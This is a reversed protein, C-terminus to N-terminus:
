FFVHNGIVLGQRGSSVPRFQTRGDVMDAGALAEAAAQMCSASPGRSIVGALKSSNASYYQGRAFVVNQVTSGYNGARLRNMITSGVAVQGEYIEHGAECQIVAAIIAQDSASTNVAYSSNQTEAAAVVTETTSTKAASTKAKAAAAKAAADEEAKKAAAIAAQEEDLTIATSYNRSVTIYDTKVYGDGKDTSIATWGEAVGAENRVNVKQGEYLATVISANEDAQSRVRLGGTKSTATAPCLKDALAKADNGTVVYQVNVYGTVNGSKIQYWDGTTAVIDAVDGARLKGVVASNTDAAERVNMETDSTTMLKKAWEDSAAANSAGTATESVTVSTKTTVTANKPNITKANVLITSVGATATLPLKSQVEVAYKPTKINGSAEAANAALVGMALAVVTGQAARKVFDRNFNMLIGKRKRDLAGAESWNVNLLIVVM